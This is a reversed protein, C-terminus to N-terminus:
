EEEKKITILDIFLQAHAHARTYFDGEKVPPVYDISMKQKNDEIDTIVLTVKSKGDDFTVTTQEPNKM